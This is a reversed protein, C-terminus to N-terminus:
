KSRPNGVGDKKYVIIYRPLVADPDPLVIEHYNLDGGYQAKGFISDYGLPPGNLEQDTKTCVYKKGPCVYCLLMARCGHAGLTYDHSKSSNPALYVGPGFRQFKINKQNFQREM